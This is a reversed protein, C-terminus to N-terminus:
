GRAFSRWRTTRLAGGTMVRAAYAGDGGGFGTGGGLVGADADDFGPEGTAGCCSSGGGCCATRSVRVTSESSLTPKGFRGRFGPAACPSLPFPFPWGGSRSCIDGVSGSPKNL